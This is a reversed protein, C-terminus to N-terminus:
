NPTPREIHDIVLVPLPERQSELKLGLQDQIATFISTRDISTDGITAAPTWELKWDFNGLLNTRDVVIRGTANSLAAVINRLPIGGGSSTGLGSRLGCPQSFTTPSSQLVSPPPQGNTIAARRALELGACDVTTSRLQPGLRGDASAVVLAYIPLARTEMHAKLAMRDELLRRMMPGLQRRLSPIDRRPDGSVKADIDFRSSSAWTPLGIIQSRLLPPDGNFTDGSFATILLSEATFNSLTFRGGPLFRASGASGDTVNPKISAVEFTPTIPATQASLVVPELDTASYCGITDTTASVNHAADRAIAVSVGPLGTGGADTVCGSISGTGGHTQPAAYGRLATGVLALTLAISAFSTTKLM